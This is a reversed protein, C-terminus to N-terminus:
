KGMTSMSSTSTKSSTSPMAQGSTMTQPSQTSTTDAMGPMSAMPNASGPLVVLHHVWKWWLYTELHPAGTAEALMRGDDQTWVIDLLDNTFTCYVRGAAQDDRIQGSTFMSIPYYSPHRFSHNWGIEGSVDTETCNGYNARFPGQSVAAVRAEYAAYLTKLSPYTRFVVGYVAYHPRTCVVMTSSMGKCTSLPVYGKAPTDGNNVGAVAQFLPSNRYSVAKPHHAMTPMTKAAGAAPTKSASGGIQLVAWVAVAVPILFAIGLAVLVSRRIGALELRQMPIYRPPGSGNPQGGRGNSREGSSRRSSSVPPKV